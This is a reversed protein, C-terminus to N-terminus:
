DKIKEEALVTPPIEYKIDFSNFENLTGDELCALYIDLQDLSNCATIIAPHLNYNVFLESALCLAKFKSSHEKLIMLRYAERFRAIASFKYDKMPKTYLKEIVDSITTYKHEEDTQLIEQIDALTYPLIVKGQLDSIILTNEIYARELEDSNITTSDNQISEIDENSNLEANSEKALEELLSQMDITSIEHIFEEISSTNEYISDLIKSFQSNYKDIKKLFTATHKQTKMSTSISELTTLLGKLSKINKNSKTLMSVSTNIYYFAKSESNFNINVQVNGMYNKMFTLLQTNLNQQIALTANLSARDLDIMKERNETDSFNIM